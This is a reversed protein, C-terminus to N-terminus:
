GILREIAKDSLSPVYVCYMRLEENNRNRCGHPTKAPIHFMTGPHMEFTEGDVEGEGNGKLICIIEDVPHSHIGTQGVKPSLTFLLATFRENDFFVETVSENM